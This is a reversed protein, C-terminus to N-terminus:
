NALTWLYRNIFLVGGICWGGLFADGVTGYYLDHSKIHRNLYKCYKFIVYSNISICTLVLLKKDRQYFHAIVKNNSM